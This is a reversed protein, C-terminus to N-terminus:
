PDIVVKCTYTGPPLGNATVNAPDTSGVPSNGVNTGPFTSTDGTTCQISSKSGGPAPAESKATVTLDTKPTDTFAAPANPANPSGSGCDANRNVTVKVPNPEDIAYGSPAETEAVTYETGVGAWFLHAVCATGDTGTTLNGNAVVNGQGDRVVFKAGALLANGSKSSEKTVRIAGQRLTNTFECTTTGGPNVTINTPTGHDCSSNTLDFGLLSPDKEAVSYPGGSTTTPVLNEFSQAGGNKETFSSGGNFGSPEFTFTSNTPDPSPVTVKKVVIKGRQTNTYTCTVTDGAVLTVTAQRSTLSTSTTSTEKESKCELGTLDFGPTPDDETLHYTGGSPVNTIKQTNEESDATTNNKDNLTFHGSADPVHTFTAGSPVDTKFGFNHDVGRPETHKIIKITGCNSINVPVPAIFDKVEATFSASSRSKLFTSGFGECTGPPFVGATTLNIAAEGFQGPPLPNIYNPSGPFLPDTVSDLNNVAGVSDTGNLEVRNGWCPLSSSSECQSTPGSTVWRLLGLTPKGGGNTFDFTVLLDGATRNLTVPGTTSGTFGATTKQNIEFDMNASGLVNSREWALYLFNSGNAFESAEYFRTLDSKNPPISGTVVTVAPNNEKTGQGFSNDGKGSALDFGANLGKVNEWDTKGFATPSALLNGDGGAFTSGALPGSCSETTGNEAFDCGTPNDAFSVAGWALLAAVGAALVAFLARRRPRPLKRRSRGRRTDAADRPEFRARLWHM